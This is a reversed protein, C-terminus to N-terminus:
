PLSSDTVQAFSDSTAILVVGSPGQFSSTNKRSTASPPPPHATGAPWGDAASRILLSCDSGSKSLSANMSAMVVTSSPRKTTHCRFLYGSTVLVTRSTATSATHAAVTSTAPVRETAPRGVATARVVCTDNSGTPGTEWQVSKRPVPGTGASPWAANNTRSGSAAVM